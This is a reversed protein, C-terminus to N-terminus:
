PASHCLTISSLGSISVGNERIKLVDGPSYSFSTTIDESGTSTAITNGNLFMTSTTGASYKNGWQVKIYSTGAPLTLSSEGSPSSGIYFQLMDATPSFYDCTTSWGATLFAAGSAIGGGNTGFKQWLFCNLTPQLTPQPSPTPRSTPLSTPAKTLSGVILYLMRKIDEFEVDLYKVLNTGNISLDWTEVSAACLVPTRVQSRSVSTSDYGNDEQLKRSGGGSSFPSSSEHVYAGAKKGTPAVTSEDAHVAGGKKGKHSSSTLDSIEDRLAQLGEHLRSNDEQLRRLGENSTLLSQELSMIMISRHGENSTLYKIMKSQHGVAVLMVITVLANWGPFIDKMM